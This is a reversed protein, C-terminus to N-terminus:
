NEVASIRQKMALSPFLLLNYLLCFLISVNFDTDGSTHVAYEKLTKRASHKIGGPTCYHGQDLIEDFSFKILEDFSSNSDTQVTIPSTCEKDFLKLSSSEFELSDFDDEHEDSSDRLVAKGVANSNDYDM